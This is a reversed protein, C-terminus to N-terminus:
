RKDFFSIQLLIKDLILVIRINIRVNTPGNCGNGKLGM